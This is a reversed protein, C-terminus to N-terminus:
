DDMYYDTYSISYYKSPDQQNAIFGTSTKGSVTSSLNATEPLVVEQLGVPDEMELEEALLDGVDLEHPQDHSSSRQLIIDLRSQDFATTQFGTITGSDMLEMSVESVTSLESVPRFSNISKQSVRRRPQEPTSEERLVGYGAASAEDQSRMEDYLAVIRGNLVAPSVGRQDNSGSEMSHTLSSENTRTRVRSAGMPIRSGFMRAVSSFLRDSWQGVPISGKRGSIGTYERPPNEFVSNIAGDVALAEDDDEKSRSTAVDVAEEGVELTPKRGPKAYPRHRRRRKIYWLCALAAVASLLFLFIGLFVKGDYSDDQTSPTPSPSSPPTQTTEAM